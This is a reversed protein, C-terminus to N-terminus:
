VINGSLAEGLEADYNAVKVSVQEVLDISIPMRNTPYANSSLGYSDNASVGDIVFGILRPM